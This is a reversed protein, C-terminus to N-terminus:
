FIYRGASDRWLKTGTAFRETQNWAFSRLSLAPYPHFPPTLAWRTKAYAPDCSLGWTTCSLASTRTAREDKRSLPSFMEPILRMRLLLGPCTCFAHSLHDGIRSLAYLIRSVGSWVPGPRSLRDPRLGNCFFGRPELHNRSRFPRQKCVGARIRTALRTGEGRPSASSTRGPCSEEAIMDAPVALLEGGPIM